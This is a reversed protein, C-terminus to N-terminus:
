GLLWWATLQTAAMCAASLAMGAALSIFLIKALEKMVAGDLDDFGM